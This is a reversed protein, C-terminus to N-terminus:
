SSPPPRARWTRVARVWPSGSTRRRRAPADNVGDGTMAVVEGESQLAAVIRLKLEPVARAVIAAHRLRRGIGADDLVGLEPGLVVDDCPLGIARAVSRATEPHDGTIMLVRIGARRCEAVSAPVAARIPDALGVLGLLEFDFDHQIEPLRDDAFFARAVALVRLGDAAM